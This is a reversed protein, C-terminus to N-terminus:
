SRALHLKIILRMKSSVISSNRSSQDGTTSGPVEEVLRAPRSYWDQSGGQSRLQGPKSFCTRSAQGASVPYISTQYQLDLEPSRSAPLHPVAHHYEGTGLQYQYEGTSAPYGRTDATGGSGSGQGHGSYIKYNGAHMPMCDEGPTGQTGPQHHAGGRLQSATASATATAPEYGSGGITFTLEPGDSIDLDPEGDDDGLSAVYDWEFLKLEYM